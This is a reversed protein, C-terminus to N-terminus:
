GLIFKNLFVGTPETQYSKTSFTFPKEVTTFVTSDYASQNFSTGTELALRLESTFLAWRPKFYDIVM